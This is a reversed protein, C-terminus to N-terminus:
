CSHPMKKVKIGGKAKDYVIQHELLIEKRGRQRVRGRTHRKFIVVDSLFVVPKEVLFGTTNILHELVSGNRHGLRSRAQVSQPYFPVLM